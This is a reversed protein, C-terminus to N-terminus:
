VAGGTVEKFATEYTAADTEDYAAEMEERQKQLMEEVMANYEELQAEYIEDGVRKRQLDALSDSSVFLSTYSSDLLEDLRADEGTLPFNHKRILGIMERCTLRKARFQCYALADIYQRAMKDLAEKAKEVIEDHSLEDSFEDPNFKYSFLIQSTSQGVNDKKGKSIDGGMANMYRILADCEDLMYNKATIKTQLREIEQSYHAYTDEDDIFLKAMSVAEDYSADLTMLEEAIRKRVEEYESINVSLDVAKVSQRFSVPSEVINFFNIANIQARVREANSASAYDFGRVSVGAVFETDSVAIMGDSDFNNGYIIDKIPVYSISDKRKFSTTDINEEKSAVKKIKLMYWIFAFGIALAFIVCVFIMNMYYTIQNILNM